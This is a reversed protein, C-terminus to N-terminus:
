LEIELAGGHRMVVFIETLFSAVAACLIVVSLEVLGAKGKGVVSDWNGPELDIVNSASAATLLASAFLSLSFKMTLPLFTPLVSVHETKTFKGEWNGPVM